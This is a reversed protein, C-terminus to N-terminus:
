GLDTRPNYPHSERWRQMLSELDADNGDPLM